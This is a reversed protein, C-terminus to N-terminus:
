GQPGDNADDHYRWREDIKASDWTEPPKKTTEDRFYFTHDNAAEIIEYYAWHAKPVDPWTMYEDYGDGTNSAVGTHVYEKLGSLGEADVGRNLYGNFIKVAEARSINRLPRFSGDEYGNIWGNAYVTYVGDAAWPAVDSGDIFPTGKNSQLGALRAIVLAFEQRSIAKDPRFTGDDYGEFVGHMSCFSIASYAWHKTVDSYGGPNGYDSGEVFGDLCARAIITAVSGRTIDYDPGFTGDPFGIVYHTHEILTHDGTSYVAYFTTEETIKVKTPDVLEPEEGQKLKAPDTDTWGLFRYGELPTVTPVSVPTKGEEVTEITPDSTQGSLGIWYYVPYCGEPVVVGGGGGPGPNPTNDTVPYEKSITITDNTEDVTVTVPGAATAGTGDWTPFLKEIVNDQTIATWDINSGPKPKITVSAKYKQDGTTPVFTDTSTMTSGDPKTWEVDHGNKQVIDFRTNDETNADFDPTQDKKPATVDKVGVNTVTYKATYTAEGDQVGKVTITATYEGIGKTLKNSSLKPTITFTGTETTQKGMETNTNLKTDSKVTVTFAGNTDSTTHTVKQADQDNTVDVETKPVDTYTVGTYLVGFNHSDNPDVKDSVSVSYEPAEVFFATVVADHTPYFTTGANKSNADTETPSAKFSGFAGYYVKTTGSDDNVEWYDFVYGSNPIAEIALGQQRLVANDPSKTTGAAPLSNVKVLGKTEDTWDNDNDTDQVQVTVKYTPKAVPVKDFRKGTYDGTGTAIVYICGDSHANLITDVTAADLKWTKETKGGIAVLASSAPNNLDPSTVNPGYYWQYTATVSADDTTFKAKLDDDATVSTTYSADSNDPDVIDVPPLTKQTNKITLTVTTDYDEGKVTDKYTVTYSGAGLHAKVDAAALAKTGSTTITETEAVVWGTTKEGPIVMTNPDDPTIIIKVVGSGENVTYGLEPETTNSTAGAGYDYTYDTGTKPTAGKAYINLEPLQAFIAQLKVNTSPYFDVSATDATEDGTKSGFGGKDTAKGEVQWRLFTYGSDPVATVTVKGSSPKGTTPNITVSGGGATGTDTDDKYDKLAEVAVVMDVTVTGTIGTGKYNYGIDNTSPNKATGGEPYATVDGTVVAYITKGADADTITLSDKNVNRGTVSGSYGLGQILTDTSPNKTKGDMYYWNVVVENKNYVPQTVGNVNRLGAGVGNATPTVTLNITELLGTNEDDVTTLKVDDDEILPTSDFLEMTLTKTVTSGSDNHLAFEVAFVDGDQPEYGAIKDMMQLWTPKGDQATFKLLAESWDDTTQAFSYYTVSDSNVLAENVTHPTGDRTWSVLKVASEAHDNKDESDGDNQGLYRWGNTTIKVEWYPAANSPNVSQSHHTADTEGFLLYKPDYNNLDWKVRNSPNPIYGDNSAITLRLDAVDYITKNEADYAWLKALYTTTGDANVTVNSPDITALNTSNVVGTATLNHGDYKGAKVTLNAYEGAGLVYSTGSYKTTEATFYTSAMSPDTFNDATAETKTVVLTVNGKLSGTGVNTVRGDAAALLVFGDPYDSSVQESRMNWPDGDNLQLAPQAGFTATIVANATPTFSTFATSADPDWAGTSSAEAWNDFVYNTNPDAVLTVTGGPNAGKPAQVYVTTSTTDKVQDNNQGNPNVPTVTLSGYSTQDDAVKVDVKYDTTFSDQAVESVNDATTERDPVTVAYVYYTTGTSLGNIRQNLGTLEVKGGAAPGDVKGYAGAVVNSISSPDTVIKGAEPATNSTTVVYYFDVDTASQATLKTIKGSEFTAGSQHPITEAEVTVGGAATVPFLYTLTLTSIGADNTSVTATVESATSNKALITYNAVEESSFIYNADKATLIVEVKYATGAAFTSPAPNGSPGKWSISTVKAAGTDSTNTAPSNVQLNQLGPLTTQPTEGKKPATITVVDAKTIVTPSVTYKAHFVPGTATTLKNHTPTFAAAHTGKGIGTPVDVPITLYAGVPFNFGNNKINADNLNITETTNDAKHLTANWAKGSDPWDTSLTTSTTANGDLTDEAFPLKLGNLDATGTNTLRITFDNNSNYKYTLDITDNTNQDVVTNGAKEVSWKVSYSEATIVVQYEHGAAATTIDNTVTFVADTTKTTGDVKYNKIVTSAGPIATIEYSGAPVKFTIKDGHHGDSGLTGNVSYTNNSGGDQYDLKASAVSSTNEQPDAVIDFVVTYLKQTLTATVPAAATGVTATVDTVKATGANAYTGDAGEATAVTWSMTYHPKTDDSNWTKNDTQTAAEKNATFTIDQGKLVQGQDKVAVDGVEATVTDAAYTGTIASAVAVSGQNNVQIADKLHVTYYDVTKTEETGKAAFTAAEVKTTDGATNTSAAWVTYAKAPDISLWTSNSGDTKQPRYGNATKDWVLAVAEADTTGDDGTLDMYLKYGPDDDGTVPTGDAKVQVLPIFQTKVPGAVIAGAANATAGTQYIALYLDSGMDDATVTYTKGTEGSIVTGDTVTLTYAAASTDLAVTPTTGATARIWQYKIDPTTTDLIEADKANTDATGTLIIKSLDAAQGELQATDGVGATVDTGSKGAVETTASKLTLPDVVLKYTYTVAPGTAGTTADKSTFAFKYWVDDSNVLGTGVTLTGLTAEDATSTTSDNKALPITTNTDDVISDELTVETHSFVPTGTADASSWKKTWNSGGDTSESIELSVTLPSNGQNTLKIPTTIASGYHYYITETYDGEGAQAITGTIDSHSANVTLGDKATELKVTFTLRDQDGDKPVNTLVITNTTTATEGAAEMGIVSKGKTSDPTATITYTGKPVKFKVSNTDDLTAANYTKEGGDTKDAGTTFTVNGKVLTILSLDTGVGGTITGTVTYTNQTLKATVETKSNITLTEGTTSATTSDQNAGAGTADTYDAPLTGPTATDAVKNQWTLAYDQSWTAAVVKVQQGKLVPTESTYSAAGHTASLGPIPNTTDFTEGTGTKYEVTSTPKVLKVTYYDVTKAKDTYTVDLNTDVLNAADGAIASAKISYTHGTILDEAKFTKSGDNWTALVEITTDADDVLTITYAPDTNGTIAASDKQVTITATYKVVARHTIVSGTVPSTADKPEVLVYIDKGEYTDAVGPYTDTTVGSIVTAKNDTKLTELSDKDTVTEDHDVAYWTFKLDTHDIEVDGSKVTEVKLTDGVEVNETDDAIKVDPEPTTDYFEASSLGQAQVNLVLIYTLTTGNSATGDAKTAFNMTYKAVHVGAPIPKSDKKDKITIKFSENKGDKAIDPTASAFDGMTPVFIDGDNSSDAAISVKYLIDTGENVLNVPVEVDGTWGYSKTVVAIYTNSVETPTPSVNNTSSYDGTHSETVVASIESTKTHDTIGDDVKLKFLSGQLYIGFSHNATTDLANALATDGETASADYPVKLGTTGKISSGDALTFGITYTGKPVEFEATGGGALGSVAGGIANFKHSNAAGSAATTYTNHGDSMTIETATGTGKVYATVIYTQQKLEAKITGIATSYTKTIGNNTFAQDATDATADVFWSLKYDQTGWDKTEAFKVETGTLVHKGSAVVFDSATPVTAQLKYNADTNEIIGTEDMDEYANKVAAHDDLTVTHYIVGASQGVAAITKGTNKMTGDGEAINTFVYYTTGPILNTVNYHNTDFTVGVTADKTYTDGSKTYIEVTYDTGGLKNGSTSDEYLTVTSDYPLATVTTTATGTANNAGKVRLWLYKGADGDVSTYTAETSVAGTADAAPEDATETIFWEYTVDSDTKGASNEKKLTYTYPKTADDTARDESDTYTITDASFTGSSEKMTVATIKAQLVTYKVTYTVAPGDTTGDVQKSTFALPVDYSTVTGDTKKVNLGDAFAVKFEKSAGAALEFGTGYTVGNPVTVTIKGTSDDMTAVNPDALSVTLKTNGTNTLTITYTNTNYDLEVSKALDEAVLAGTSEATVGEGEAKLKYVTKDVYVRLVGTAAGSVTYPTVSADPDTSSTANAGTRYGLITSGDAETAGLTYGANTITGGTLGSKPVNFTYAGDTPTVKFVHGDNTLTVETVSAGNTKAYVDGTIEYTNQKLVGGIYTKATVETTYGTGTAATKDQPDGRDHSEAWTPEVTVNNAMRWTLKYDQDWSKAKATVKTGTLVATGSAVDIAAENDNGTQLTDVAYTGSAFSEGVENTDSDKAHEQSFNSTTVTYFNVEAEPVTPTVEEGTEVKPSTTGAVRNITVSYDVGGVLASSSTSHKDSGFNAGTLTVNKTEDTPHVLVIEYNGKAADAIANDDVNVVVSADYDVPIVNSLVSNPNATQANEVVSVVAYVYKGKAAAPVEITGDAKATIETGTEGATVNGPKSDAYYWTWILENPDIKSDTYSVKEVFKHDDHDVNVTGVRTSGDGTALKVGIEAKTLNKKDATIDLTVAETKANAKANPADTPGLQYDAVFSYGNKVDKAKLWAPKLTYTVVGTSDDKTVVVKDAEATLENGDLTIKNLNTGSNPTFTLVVDGTGDTKSYTNPDIALTAVKYFVPTLTITDGAKITADTPDFVAPNSGVSANTDGAKAIVIGTSGNEGATVNWQKFVYGDPVTVMIGATADAGTLYLSTGSNSGATVTGTVGSVAAGKDDKAADIKVAYIPKYAATLVVKETVTLDSNATTIEGTSNDSKPYTYKGFAYKSTETIGAALKVTAGSPVAIRKTSTGAGAADNNATRVITNATITPEGGTFAKDAWEISLLDVNFPEDPNGDQYNDSTIKTTTAYGNVYVTYDVGTTLDEFKYGKGNVGTGTAYETVTTGNNGHLAITEIGVNDTATHATDNIYTDVLAYFKSSQNVVLKLPVEITLDGDTVELTATYGDTKVAKGAKYPVTITAGTTGTVLAAGSVTSTPDGFADNTDDGKISITLNGTAVNGLNKITVVADGAAYGAEVTITVGATTMTKTESGVAYETAQLNKFNATLTTDATPHFFVPNDTAAKDNGIAATSGFTGEGGDEISWGTFKGRNIVTDTTVGAEVETGTGHDVKVEGTPKTVTGVDTAGSRVKVTYVATFDATLTIDDTGDAKTAYATWGTFSGGASGDTWLTEGDKNSLRYGEAETATLKITQAVGSPVYLAVCATNYPGVNSNTQIQAKNTSSDVTTGNESVATVVKLMPVTAVVASGDAVSQFNSSAPTPCGNVYIKYTVGGGGVSLNNVTYTGDNNDKIQKTGSQDTGAVLTETSGNVQMVQIHMGKLDASVANKYTLKVTATFNDDEMNATMTVDSTPQVYLITKTGDKYLGSIANVASGSTAADYAGELTGTTLAWGKLRKGSAAAVNVSIRKGADVYAVASSAKKTTDASVESAWAAGTPTFTATVKYQQTLHATIAVDADIGAISYTEEVANVNATTLGSNKDTAGAAATWLNNADGSKNLRYHKTTSTNLTAKVGVTPTGDATAPVRIPGAGYSGATTKIQVTCAGNELTDDATDSVAAVTLEYMVVDESMDEATDYKIQQTTKYGNVYVDYVPVSDLTSGAYVETNTYVGNSSASTLTYSKTSDASNVLKVETVLTSDAANNYKTTVTATFEDKVFVAEITANDDAPFFYATEETGDATTGDSAATKKLEGGIVVWKEFRYGDDPTPDSLTVYSGKDVQANGGTAPAGGITASPAKVEATYVGHDDGNGTPTTTDGGDVLKYVTYQQQFNAQLTVANAPMAFTNAATDTKFGEPVDTAPDWSDFRYDTAATVSTTVSTGSKCYVTTGTTNNVTQGLAAASNGTSGDTKLTLSYLEIVIEALDENAGKIKDAALTAEAGVFTKPAGTPGSVTFTYPALTDKIGNFTASGGTTVKDEVKNNDKNTLTVTLDTQATGNIKVIVKQAYSELVFKATLTAQSTGVTYTAKWNNTSDITLGATNASAAWSPNGMTYNTKPKAAVTVTQGPLYYNTLDNTETATLPQTAGFAVFGNAQDVPDTALTVGYFIVDATVTSGDVTSETDNLTVNVTSDVDGVFIDYDAADFAVNAFTASQGDAALTGTYKVDTGQKLTVATGATLAHATGKANKWFNVTVNATKKAFTATHSAATTIGTEKLPNTTGTGSDWHDLKYNAAPTATWTVDTGSLVWLVVSANSTDTEVTTYGTAAVSVEGNDGAAGTASVLPVTVDTGQSLTDTWKHGDVYVDYTKGAALASFTVAGAANTTGTFAADTSAAAGAERLAVGATTGSAPAAGDWTVTVTQEYVSSKFHAIYTKPTDATSFDILTLVNDTATETSDDPTGSEGVTWEVFECNDKATATIEYTSGLTDEDVIFTADTVGVTDEVGDDAYTLYGLNADNVKVNVTYFQLIKETNASIKIDESYSGKLLSDNTIKITYDGASLEAFSVTGDAAVTGSKLATAGGKQYLEVVQGIWPKADTERDKNVTLNLTYTIPKVEEYVATVTIGSSGDM